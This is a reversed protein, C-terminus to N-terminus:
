TVCSQQEFSRTLKFFDPCTEGQGSSKVHTSNPEDTPYHADKDNTWLLNIRKMVSEGWVCWSRFNPRMVTCMVFTPGAVHKIFNSWISLKIACSDPMHEPWGWATYLTPWLQSWHELNFDEIGKLRSKARWFIGRGFCGKLICGWISFSSKVQHGWYLIGAMLFWCTYPMTM